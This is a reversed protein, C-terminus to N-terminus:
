IPFAVCQDQLSCCKRQLWCNHIKVDERLSSVRLGAGDETESKGVSGHTAGDRRRCKQRCCVRLRRTKLLGLTDQSLYTRDATPRQQKGTRQPIRLSLASDPHRSTLVASGRHQFMTIKINSKPLPLIEAYKPVLSPLEQM